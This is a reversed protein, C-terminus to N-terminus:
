TNGPHTLCGSDLHNRESCVYLVTNESSELLHICPHGKGGQVGLGENPVLCWSEVGQVGSKSFAGSSASFSQKWLGKGLVDLVPIKLFLLLALSEIFPWYIVSSKKKIIKM